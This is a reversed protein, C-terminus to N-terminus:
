EVAKKNMKEIQEKDKDSLGIAKDPKREKYEEIYELFDKVNFSVIVKKTKMIEKIEEPIEMLCLNDKEEKTHEIEITLDILDKEDQRIKVSEIKINM